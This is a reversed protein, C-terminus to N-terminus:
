HEGDLRRAFDTEVHLQSGGVLAGVGVVAFVAVVRRPWRRSLSATWQLFAGLVDRGAVRGTGGSVDVVPAPLFSLLIPVLTVAILLATGVGVGLVVGLQRFIPTPVLALAVFGVFTTASTWLCALGVDSAAELIAEDRKRGAGLELLYASVLHIVDSFSIVLIVAPVTSVLVSVHRDLLVAFGMTWVVAVAAVTFAIAVPWLRRFMLWVALLLVACVVPFLTKFNWYTTDIVAGVTSPLGVVHLDERSFGGDEFASVFSAILEPLREVPRDSGADLEIVVAAARGDDALLLSAAFPDAQLRELLAEAQAPDRRAARAYGRVRLSESDGEIWQADLLSRTDAVLPLGEIRRLVPRLRSLEGPALPAETEYAVVVIED